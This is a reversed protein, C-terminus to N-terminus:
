RVTEFALGPARLADLDEGPTREDLVQVGTPDDPLFWEAGKRLLQCGVRIIADPPAPAKV